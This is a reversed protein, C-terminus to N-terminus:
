FVTLYNKQKEANTFYKILAPLVNILVIKQYKTHSSIAKMEESAIIRIEMSEAKYSVTIINLVTSKCVAQFVLYFGVSQKALLTFSGRKLREKFQSFWYDLM